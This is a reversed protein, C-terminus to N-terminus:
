KPVGREKFYSQLELMKAYKAKENIIEQKTKKQIQSEYISFFEEQTIVEQTLFLKTLNPYYNMKRLIEDEEVIVIELDDVEYAIISKDTFVISHFTNSISDDNVFAVTKGVIDDFDKLVLM